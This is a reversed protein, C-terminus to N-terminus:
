SNELLCSIILSTSGTGNKVFDSSARGAIARSNKNILFERLMANFQSYKRTSFAGQKKLLIQAEPFKDFRPGFIVPLGFAAPELINHIGKGFGGGIVAVEGYRYIRNLLGIQDIILVLSHSFQDPNRLGDSYLVVENSFLSRIREINRSSVDHPALVLKYRQGGFLDQHDQYFRVLLREEPEWTSGGIVLGATQQSFEQLGAVEMDESAIKWVRDIRTDGALTVQNFGNNELLEKTQEDQVFLRKFFRMQNMITRGWRRFYFQGSRFRASVLYTPINQHNLSSLLHPWLDYKILIFRSPSVLSLVQSLDSSSDFPLYDVFDAVPYDKQIAYGSPSFFTLLIYDDPREARWAEMLPRGQEFEGLSSAHFWIVEQAVPFVAQYRELLGRRSRVVQRARAHLPALM